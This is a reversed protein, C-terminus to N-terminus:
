VQQRMCSTVGQAQAQTVNEQKSSDVYDFWLINQLIGGLQPVGEQIEALGSAIEEALGTEVFQGADISCDGIQQWPWRMMLWQRTACAFKPFADELAVRLQHRSMKPPTDQLSMKRLSRKTGLETNLQYLDILNVTYKMDRAFYDFILSDRLEHTQLQLALADDVLVWGVDLHIEWLVSRMSRRKGTSLNVQEMKEFDFLHEQNNSAVYRLEREGKRAAAALRGCLGMGFPVWAGGRLLEWQASEKNMQSARHDFWKKYTSEEHGISFPPPQELEEVSPAAVELTPAENADNEETM